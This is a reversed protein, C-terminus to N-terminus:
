NRNRGKRNNAINEITKDDIFEEEKLKNTRPSM